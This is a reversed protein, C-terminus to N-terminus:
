GKNTNILVFPNMKAMKLMDYYHNDHQLTKIIYNGRECSSKGTCDHGSVSTYGPFKSVPNSNPLPIGEPIWQSSLKLYM